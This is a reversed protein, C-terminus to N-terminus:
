SRSRAASGAGATPGDRRAAHARVARVARATERNSRELAQVAVGRLCAGADRAALRACIRTQELPDEPISLAAASVCGYRQLGRLGACATRISAPATSSRRSRRSSSTATGARACTGSTATASSVRRRATRAASPGTPAACRSGTTTSRARRATPRRRASSAARPSRSASAGTTARADARPRDRARVHVLPLADAPAHVAHTGLTRRERHDAPRPVDVLGMGFGASCTPDNSRPIYDMLDGLTVHHEAGYRRGVEHM